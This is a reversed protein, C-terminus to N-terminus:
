KQLLKVRFFAAEDCCNTITIDRNSTPETIAVFQNTNLTRSKELVYWHLNTTTLTVLDKLISSPGDWKFNWADNTHTIGTFKPLPHFGIVGRLPLEAQWNAAAWQSITADGSGSWSTKYRVYNVGSNNIYYGYALMGHIIPNARPM